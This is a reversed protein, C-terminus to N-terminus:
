QTLGHKQFFAEADNRLYLHGYEEDKWSFPAVGGKQLRTIITRWFIGHDESLTKQTVFKTHFASIDSATVYFRELGTKSVTKHSAPTHGDRVLRVLAENERMGVSRGFASATSIVEIPFPAGVDDKTKDPAFDDVEVKSVCFSRYGDAGEFRAIRLNGDKIAIIISNIDLKKRLCAHQLSEWQNKNATTNCALSNLEDVLRIGDQLRWPSKITPIDTAPLLFGGESLSKFQARTAGMATRMEIPGVLNSLGSLFGAYKKADFTKRSAPRKDKPDYAGAEILLQDLLRIGLGTEDMVSKLSHLNREALTFGLIEQGPEVPWNAIVHNWLIRRFDDFAEDHRYARSLGRFLAGFAKNALDNAACAHATLKEFAELIAEEGQSAVNFGIEQAARSRDEVSTYIPLRLLEAGLLRCFITAAHISHNSLWTQDAGNELRQDLWLDYASPSVRSQEFKGEVLDELIEALRAGTDFRETPLSREWLPVLPHGHKVCISVERLQWDGRMAM